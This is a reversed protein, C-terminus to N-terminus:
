KNRYEKMENIEEQRRGSQSANVTVKLRQSLTQTHTQHWAAAPNTYEAQAEHRCVARVPRIQFSWFMLLYITVGRRGAWKAPHDVSDAHLLADVLQSAAFTSMQTNSWMFIKLQLFCLIYQLVILVLVIRDIRHSKFNLLNSIFLLLLAEWSIMEQVNGACWWDFQKFSIRLKWIRDDSCHVHLLTM